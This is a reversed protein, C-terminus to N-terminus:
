ARLMWARHQDIQLRKINYYALSLSTTTLIVQDYVISQVDLGGGFAKRTIMLASANGVLALLLILYGNIRHFLILKHRIVPVFQWVSLFGAPIIDIAGLHVTIGVQYHGAKYKYWEGPSAGNKFSSSSNGAINLYPLRALSFGLMAGAFIFVTDTLSPTLIPFPPKCLPFNHGKSFGLSRYVRNMVRCFKSPQTEISTAPKTRSQSDHQEMHNQQHTTDQEMTSSAM